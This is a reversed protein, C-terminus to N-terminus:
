PTYIRTRALKNRRSRYAPYAFGFTFPIALFWWALSEGLGMHGQESKMERMEQDNDTGPETGQV